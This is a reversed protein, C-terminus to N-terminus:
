DIWQTKLILVKKSSRSNEKLIIQDKKFFKKNKEWREGKGGRIKKLFKLYKKTVSQPM